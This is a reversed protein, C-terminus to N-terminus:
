QPTVASNHTLELSESAGGAMPLHQQQGIHKGAIANKKTYKAIVCIAATSLIFAGLALALILAGVFFVWWSIGAQHVTHVGATVNNITYTSIEEFIWVKVSDVQLATDNGRWTPLWSAKNRWFDAFANANNRYPKNPVNESFYGNTGGVANNLILFFEQNFPASIDQNKWPNFYKAAEWGLNADNAKKWFSKTLDVDLNINSPNDLYTYLRNKDWYFGFTHFDDNYNRGNNLTKIKRTLSYGNAGYFPGWHLTSSWSEIGGEPANTQLYNTNGRCEVIDIEGSAPWTGYKNYRPMLWMAPWIWDGKPLKAKIEVRGYKFSFSEATRVRASTIPNVVFGNATTRLCGAQFNSSCTDPMENGWLDISFGNTAPDQGAYDMTTM